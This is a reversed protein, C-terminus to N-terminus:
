MIAVVNGLAVPVIAFLVKVVPAVAHLFQSEPMFVSPCCVGNIKIATTTMAVNM